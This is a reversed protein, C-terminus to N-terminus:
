DVIKNNEFKINLFKKSSLNDCMHVFKQYKNTPRPLVVDSYYNTTFQGLHSLLVNQLFAIENDTFTTKDQYKKVFGAILIPHDFQVYQQKTIGHKLGDHIILALIMLDKEEQKFPEGIIGPLLEYAIRVAAKTHRVLGGEGQAFKPHYKGTSAASVEFFYDPLLEILIEANKQYEKSKIYNLETKFVEKKM